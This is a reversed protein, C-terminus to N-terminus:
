CEHNVKEQVYKEFIYDLWTTFVDYKDLNKNCDENAVKEFETFLQYLKNDKLNVSNKNRNRAEVVNPENYFVALVVDESYNSIVGAFYTIRKLDQKVREESLLNEVLEYIKDTGVIYVPDIVTIMERENLSQMADSLLSYDAIGINQDIIAEREKEESNDLYDSSVTYIYVYRFLTNLSIKSNRNLAYIFLSLYYRYN